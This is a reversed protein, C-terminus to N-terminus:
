DFYPYDKDFYNITVIYHYEGKGGFFTFGVKIKMGNSNNWRAEMVDYGWHHKQYPDVFTTEGILTSDPKGFTQTYDNIIKQTTYLCKDFNEKDIDDIYKSFHIWNLKNNEFRFGWEGPLNHLTDNLSLTISNEYSSSVTKTYLSKVEDITMGIKVKSQALINLSIFTIIGLIFLKKM